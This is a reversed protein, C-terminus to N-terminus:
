GTWGSTCSVERCKVATDTLRADTPTPRRDDDESMLEMSEITGRVLVRSSFPRKIDGTSPDPVLVPKRRTFSKPHKL